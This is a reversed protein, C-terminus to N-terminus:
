ITSASIMLDKSASRMFYRRKTASDKRFPPKPSSRTLFQMDADASPWTLFAAVLQHTEDVQTVEVTQQV